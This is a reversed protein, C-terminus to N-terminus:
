VENKAEEYNKTIHRKTSESTNLPELGLLERNEDINHVGNRTLIDIATAIKNISATKIRSTDVTIHANKKLYDDKSFLKRNMEDKILELMPEVSLKIFADVTEEIGAVSGKLLQPPINFGIAVFDFVDDMLNRIDRSDTANKYSDASIDKYTIGGTLPLVAGNEASYFKQVDEEILKKLKTRAEDTKPYNTPVEMVGRKANNKRYSGKSYEILKGYDEYLSNLLSVIREENLEFHLVEEEQFSRNLKYGKITIDKYYNPLLARTHPTFSDAIYYNDGYKVVLCENDYVLKYVFKRWFLAASQNQNPQVNFAYYDNEKVITNNRYPKFESLSIANGLLAISTNIALQKLAIKSEIQGTDYEIVEGTKPNKIRGFLDVVWEFFGM